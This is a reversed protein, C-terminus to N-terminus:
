NLKDKLKKELYDKGFGINLDFKSIFEEEASLELIYKDEKEIITYKAKKNLLKEFLKVIDLVRYRYPNALDFVTCSKSFSCYLEVLKVVDEIEIVYRYAENYVKFENNNMISKYIFNILTKHEILCGFLQPIRFIYYNDSNNRILNEMKKKHLYYENLEYGDASLACSSFYIFKKDKHEQLTSLLLIEERQFEREEQCSSNSVGSAFIVTRSFKNNKFAQALQGNGIISSM